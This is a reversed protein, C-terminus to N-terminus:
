TKARCYFCQRPLRQECRHEENETQRRREQRHKTSENPITTRRRHNEDTNRTRTRIGREEDSGRTRRRHRLNERSGRMGRKQRYRKSEDSVRTEAPTGRRRRHEGDGGTRPEISIGTGASHPRRPIPTYKREAGGKRDDTLRRTFHSQIQVCKQM